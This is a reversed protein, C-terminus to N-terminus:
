TVIPLLWSQAEKEDPALMVAVKVTPPEPGDGVGAGVGEGVDDGVGEGHVSKVRLRVVRVQPLSIEHFMSPEMVLECVYPLLRSNVCVTQREAPVCVRLQMSEYPSPQCPPDIAMASAAPVSIRVSAHRPKRDPLEAATVKEAPEGQGAGVGAGNSALTGQVPVSPLGSRGAAM